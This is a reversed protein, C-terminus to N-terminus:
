PCCGLKHAAELGDLIKGFVMFAEKPTLKGVLSRISKEFLPMVFFPTQDDTLGHYLVTIINQHKNLSCFRYENEFRKLKESTAVDSRLIKIAVLTGGEEKARYVIGSGGGGIQDVLTYIAFTTRVQKSKKM